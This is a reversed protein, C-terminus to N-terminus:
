NDKNGLDSQEQELALELKKQFDDIKIKPTREDDDNKKATKATNLNELNNLTNNLNNIANNINDIENEDKIKNSEGMNDINFPNIERNDKNKSEIEAKKNSSNKKISNKKGLLELDKDEFINKTRNSNTKKIPREKNKNYIEKNFIKEQEDFDLDFNFNNSSSPHIPRDDPDIFKNSTSPRIPRDDPNIYKNSDHANTDFINVKKDSDKIIDKESSNFRKLRDKGKKENIINKLEEINDKEDDNDEINNIIDDIISMLLSNIMKKTGKNYKPKKPKINLKSYDLKELESLEPIEINKTNKMTERNQKIIKPSYNLIQLLKQGEKSLGNYEFSINEMEDILKKNTKEIFNLTFDINFNDM